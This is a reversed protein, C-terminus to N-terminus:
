HTKGKHLLDKQNSTRVTNTLQEEPYKALKANHNYRAKQVSMKAGNRHEAYSAQSNEHAEFM